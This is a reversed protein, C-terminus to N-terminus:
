NYSYQTDDIYEVLFLIDAYFAIVQLCLEFGLIKKKRIVWKPGFAVLYAVLELFYWFNFVIALCIWAFLASKRYERQIMYEVWAFQVLCILNISQCLAINKYSLLFEQLKIKWAPM